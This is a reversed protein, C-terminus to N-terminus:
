LVKREPFVAEDDVSRSAPLRRLLVLNSSEPTKDNAAQELGAPGPRRNTSPRPVCDLCLLGGGNGWSLGVAGGGCIGHTCDAKQKWM